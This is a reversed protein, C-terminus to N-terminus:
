RSGISVVTMLVCFRAVMCSCSIGKRTILLKKQFWEQSRPDFHRQLPIAKVEEIRDNLDTVPTCQELPHLVRVQEQASLAHGWFGLCCFCFCVVISKM